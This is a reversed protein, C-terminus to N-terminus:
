EIPGSRLMCVCCVCRIHMRTRVQQELPTFKSGKSITPVEKDQVLKQRRMAFKRKALEHRMPDRGVDQRPQSARPRKVSPKSEDVVVVDDESRSRKTQDATPTQKDAQCSLANRQDPATKDSVHQCTGSPGVSPTTNKCAKSSFFSQISSQAKGTSARSGKM